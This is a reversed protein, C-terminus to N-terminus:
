RADNLFFTWQGDAVFEIPRVKVDHAAKNKELLRLGLANVYAFEDDKAGIEDKLDYHKKLLDEATNVDVAKTDDNLRIKTKEVWTMLDSYANQFPAM